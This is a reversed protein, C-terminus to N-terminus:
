GVSKRCALGMLGLASGFLYVAPPIPVGPIVRDTHVEYLVSWYSHDEPNSSYLPGYWTWGAALGAEYYDTASFYVRFGGQALNAVQSLYGGYPYEVPGSEPLAGRTALSADIAGQEDGIFLETGFSGDFAVDYLTGNIDLGVIQAVRREATYVIGAANAQGCSVAMGLLVVVGRFSFVRMTAFGSTTWGSENNDASAIGLM